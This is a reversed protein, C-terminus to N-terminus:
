GAKLGATRTLSSARQSSCAMRHLRRFMKKRDPPGGGGAGSGGGRAAAKPKNSEWEKYGPFTHTTSGPGGSPRPKRYVIDAGKRLTMEEGGRTYCFKQESKRHRVKMWKGNSKDYVWQPEPPSKAGAPKAIAMLKNVKVIKKNAVATIKKNAGGKRLAAAPGRGYVVSGTKSVVKQNKRLTTREGGMNYFVRGDAAKYLQLPKYDAGGEEVFRGTIKSMM